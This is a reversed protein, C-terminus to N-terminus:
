PFSSLFITVVCNLYGKGLTTVLSHNMLSFCDIHEVLMDSHGIQCDCPTFTRISGDVGLSQNLRSGVLEGYTSM